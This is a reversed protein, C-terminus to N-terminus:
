LRDALGEISALFVREDKLKFTTSTLTAREIRDLRFSRADQRLHDWTLLYWVPWCLLLFHPEVRRATRQQKEDTYAIDLMKREFFAEQVAGISARSVPRYTSLVSPSAPKGVLIRRRLLAIAQKQSEMVAAALKRRVSALQGFFLPSGLKEVIALSLLVDIAERYDFSVAGLAGKRYLRVGGGRGIDAEIPLGQDRLLAIDRTATRISVNLAKALQGVTTCEGTRLLEALRDLRQLRTKLALQPVVSNCLLIVDYKPTNAL